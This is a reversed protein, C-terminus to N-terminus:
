DEIRARGDGRAEGVLEVLRVPQMEVRKQRQAADQEEDGEHHKDDRPKQDRMNSAPLRMSAARCLVRTAVASPTNTRPHIRRITATSPACPSESARKVSGVGPGPLSPPPSPLATRPLRMRVTSPIPM